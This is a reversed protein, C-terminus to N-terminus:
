EDLDPFRDDVYKPLDVKEPITIKIELLSHSAIAMPFYRKWFREIAYAPSQAYIDLKNKISRRDNGDVGQYRQEWNIRYYSYEEM